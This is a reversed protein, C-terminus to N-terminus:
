FATTVIFSFVLMCANLMFFSRICCFLLMTIIPPIASLGCLNFSYMPSEYDTISLSSISPSSGKWPRGTQVRSGGKAMDPWTQNVLNPSSAQAAASTEWGNGLWLVLQLLSLFRGTVERRDGCAELLARPLDPVRMDRLLHWCLYSHCDGFQTPSDRSAGDGVTVVLCQM